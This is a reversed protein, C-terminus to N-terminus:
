SDRCLRDVTKLITPIRHDGDMSKVKKGAEVCNVGVSTVYLPRQSEGRCVEEAATNQHFSSKAVGIIPTKRGLAEYLHAGLGTKGEGDLWVYGDVLIIEVDESIQELVALVCPLERKYFAGPEYPAVSHITQVYAASPEADTWDHIVVCAAVATNDRYDVDICAIM